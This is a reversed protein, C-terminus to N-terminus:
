VYVMGSPQVLWMREIELDRFSIVGEKVLFYVISEFIEPVRSCVVFHWICLGSIVM